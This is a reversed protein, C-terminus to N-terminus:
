RRETNSTARVPLLKATIKGAPHRKHTVQWLWYATLLLVILGSEFYILRTAALATDSGAFISHVTAGIYAAFSLGHIARFTKYGIRKRLYFTVTVLISIDTALIGVGVWFPRYASVFPVLIETVSFPAYSDWVLAFVHIGIFGLALLSIFEHSDFTFPRHLIRDTFKSAVALGSVTSLWLLLYAMLGASRTIFWFVHGSDLAFLSNMSQIIENM